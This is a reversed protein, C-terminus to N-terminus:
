APVKPANLFAWVVLGLMSLFLASLGLNVCWLLFWYRLVRFRQRMSAFCFLATSPLLLLASLGLLPLVLALFSLGLASASYTAMEPQVMRFLAAGTGFGALALLAGLVQITRLTWTFPPPPSPKETM